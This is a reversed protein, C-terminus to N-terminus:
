NGKTRIDSSVGFLDARPYGWAPIGQPCSAAPGIRLTTFNGRPTTAFRYDSLEGNALIPMRGFRLWADVQCDSAKLARLEQVSGSVTEPAASLGAPCAVAGLPLVGRRLRYRTGNSEISVYAWCLPQSPFATMAVDLVRSAPDARELEETLWARGKHSAVGQVAIFGVSVGLALLLGGRGREGARWQAAGCVAAILLLAAFSMWGIYGRAAFLVLAAFLALLGTVRLWRWRMILAMPVGIAVWFLPEIIFVMDGYLWRGDFPYWPHVGYSNTFDMLLHLALGVSVSIALGLRAARSDRLLARAAPWCLWLLAALLVAQPVAWLVTHTHGRHNLLYGLPDPLLRTLFLDLDPFNSALACSVLLLRHRVRQALTGPEAPLGRHVVEGVGFGIISHTLNDM